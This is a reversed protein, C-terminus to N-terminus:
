RGRVPRQHPCDSFLLCSVPSLLCSLSAPKRERGKSDGTEQKRDGKGLPGMACNKLYLDTASSSASFARSPTSRRKESSREGINQGIVMPPRLIPLRQHM